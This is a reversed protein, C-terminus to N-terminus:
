AVNRLRVIYKRSLLHRHNCSRYISPRPQGKPYLSKDRIYKDSRSDCSCFLRCGSVVFIAIIHQDNCNTGKTTKELRVCEANVLEEKIECARRADKLRRILRLYRHAKLLEEKYKTGGYVIRGEGEIVWKRVPEFDQHGKSNQNFVYSLANTDIVICM